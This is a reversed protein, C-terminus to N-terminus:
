ENGELVCLVYEMDTEETGKNYKPQKVVRLIYNRNCELNLKGLLHKIVESSQTQVTVQETSIMVDSLQADKVSFNVQM